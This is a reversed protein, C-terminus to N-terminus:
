SAVPLHALTHCGLPQPKSPRPYLSTTFLGRAAKGPEGGARPGYENATAALPFNRKTEPIVGYSGAVPFISDPLMECCVCNTRSFMFFTREAPAADSAL